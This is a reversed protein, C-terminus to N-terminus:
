FKCIPMLLWNLVLEHGLCQRLAEKKESGAVLCDNKWIYLILNELLVFLTSLVLGYYYCFHKKTFDLQIVFVHESKAFVGGAVVQHLLIRGLENFIM